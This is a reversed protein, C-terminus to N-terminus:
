IKWCRGGRPKARCGLRARPGPSGGIVSAGCRRREPGGAGDRAVAELDFPERRPVGEVDADGLGPGELLPKARTDDLTIVEALNAEHGARVDAVVSPARFEKGGHHHQVGVIQPQDLGTADAGLGSERVHGAVEGEALKGRHQRSEIAQTLARIQHEAVTLAARMRAAEAEGAMEAHQEVDRGDATGLAPEDPRMALGPCSTAAM